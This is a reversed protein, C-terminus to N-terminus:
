KQEKGAVVSVEPINAKLERAQEGPLCLTYLAGELRRMLDRKSKQPAYVFGEVVVVHNNLTDVRSHSVFPGGMADNEMMWLGRIEMAYQGKVVIPRVSTWATDTAMYMYPQAGPINVKMVSDRKALVYQKNFTQPGEYPYSYMCMNLLGTAGSSAAWFFDKGKKSSQIEDPAWLQCGFIEGALQEVLKSHKEELDNILRNMEVKTFFDIITQSNKSVFAEFDEENPSQITLIVQPRAFVDRSYKLRTQTYENPNIKVQIINRCFKMSRNFQGPNVQSMRFSREPQPLGPVDTDLVNFLARGAPREWLSDDVVVLTEYPRGSSAPTGINECSAFIALAVLLMGCKVGWKNRKM